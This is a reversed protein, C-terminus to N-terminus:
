NAKQRSRRWVIFAVIGVAINGLVVLMRWDSKAERRAFGPEPFGFASLRCDAEDPDATRVDTYEYLSILKLESGILGSNRSASKPHPIGDQNAFANEGDHQWNEGSSTKTHVSFETVAASLGMDVVFTGDNLIEANPLEYDSSFVISVLRRDSSRTMKKVSFRESQVLLNADAYSLYVALSNHMSVQWRIADDEGVYIIKYPSGAPTARKFLQFGYDRNWGYVDTHTPSSLIALGCHEGHNVSYQMSVTNRKEAEISTTSMSTDARWLSKPERLSKWGGSAVSIVEKWEDKPIDAFEDGHTPRVGVLQVVFAVFVVSISAGSSRIM